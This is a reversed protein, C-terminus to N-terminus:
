LRAPQSPSDWSLPFTGPEPTDSFFVYSMKINPNFGPEGMEPTYSIREVLALPENIAVKNIGTLDIRSVIPTDAPDNDFSIPDQDSLILAFIKDGVPVFSILDSRLTPLLCDNGFKSFLECLVVVGETTGDPVQKLADEVSGESLTVQLAAAPLSDAFLTAPFSSTCLGVVLLARMLTKIHGKGM